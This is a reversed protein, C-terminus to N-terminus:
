NRHKTEKLQLFMLEFENNLFKGLQTFKSVNSIHRIYDSRINKKLTIFLQM